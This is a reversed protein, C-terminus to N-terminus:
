MVLTVLLSTSKIDTSPSSRYEPALPWISAQTRLQYYFGQEKRDFFVEKNVKKLDLLIM